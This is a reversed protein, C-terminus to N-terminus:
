GEMGITARAKAMSNRFAVADPVHLTMHVNITTPLPVDLSDFAQLLRAQMDASLQMLELHQRFCERKTM